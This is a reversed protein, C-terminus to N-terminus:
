PLKVVWYGSKTNGVRGILGMSKLTQIHDQVNRVAIGINEALAKTTIKPNDHMLKLIRDKTTNENINDVIGDVINFGIM